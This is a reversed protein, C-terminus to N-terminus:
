ASITSSVVDDDVATGGTSTAAAATVSSATRGRYWPRTPAAAAQWPERADSAGDGGVRHDGAVGRPPPATAPRRRPRRCSPPRTSREDWGMSGSRATPRRSCTPRPACGRPSSSGTSRAARRGRRGNGPAYSSSGGCAEEGYRALSSCSVITAAYARESPSEDM